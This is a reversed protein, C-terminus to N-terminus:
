KRGAYQTALNLIENFAEYIENKDTANPFEATIHVQQELTGTNNPVGYAAIRNGFGASVYANLDIIEAVQRVMNIASLFNKSDDKNLIIEKEHLMALRGDPGWAGTYGGTDYATLDGRKFWGSVGSSLSHHRVQVWDGQIQLVRYKPDSAFLQSEGQAGAYDYIKASSSAKVRGGSHISPAKKPTEPESPQTEPEEKPTTEEPAVPPEGEPSEEKVEGLMKLLEKYSNVLDLNKSITSDILASYKATWEEVSDLIKKFEDQTKEAKEETDKRLRESHETITTVNTGISSAFTSYATGAAEFVGKSNAIYNDLATSMSKMMTDISTLYNSKYEDFTKFGGLISL